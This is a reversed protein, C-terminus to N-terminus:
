SIVKYKKLADMLPDRIETDIDGKYGWVAGVICLIFLGLMFIFYTGLMCKNGQMM